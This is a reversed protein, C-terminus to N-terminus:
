RFLPTFVWENHREIGYYTIVADRKSRSTIGIFPKPSNSADDESISSLAGYREIRSEHPQHDACRIEPVPIARQLHREALM